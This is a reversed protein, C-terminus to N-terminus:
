LPRRCVARGPQRWENRRCRPLQVVRPVLNPKPITDIFHQVALQNLLQPSAEVARQHDVGADVITATWLSQQAAVIPVPERRQKMPCLVFWKRGHHRADRNAM